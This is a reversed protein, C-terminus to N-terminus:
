TRIGATTFCRLRPVEPASIPENFSSCLGGPGATLSDSAIPTARPGSMTQCDVRFWMARQMSEAQNAGCSDAMFRELDKAVRRKRMCLWGRQCQRRANSSAASRCTSPTTNSIALATLRSPWGLVVRGTPSGSGTSSLPPNSSPQPTSPQRAHRDRKRRRLSM